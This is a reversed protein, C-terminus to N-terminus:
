QALANAPLKSGQIVFVGNQRDISISAANTAASAPTPAVVIAVVISLATAIGARFPTVFRKLHKRHPPHQPHVNRTMLEAKRNYRFLAAPVYVASFTQTHRTVRM